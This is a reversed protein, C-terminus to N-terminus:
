LAPWTFNFMRAINDATFDSSDLLGRWVKVAKLAPDGSEEKYKELEAIKKDKGAEMEELEAIRAKLVEVEALLVRQRNGKTVWLDSSCM